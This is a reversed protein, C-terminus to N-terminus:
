PCAAFIFHVGILPTCKANFHSRVWVPFFAVDLDTLTVISFVQSTFIVNTAAAATISSLAHACLLFCVGLVWAGGSAVFVTFLGASVIAGVLTAEVGGGLTVGAGDGDRVGVGVIVSDGM